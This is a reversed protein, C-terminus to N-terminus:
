SGGQQQSGPHAPQCKGLSSPFVPQPLQPRPANATNWALNHANGGTLDSETDRKSHSVKFLTVIETM